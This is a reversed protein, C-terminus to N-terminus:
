LPKAAAPPRPLGGALGGRLQGFALGTREVFHNTASPWNPPPAKQRCQQAHWSVSVSRGGIASRAANGVAACVVEGAPIDLNLRNTGRDRLARSWVRSSGDDCDAATDRLRAVQYLTVPADGDLDVHFLHAPGALLVQPHDRRTLLATPRLERGDASAHLGALPTTSACGAFSVLAFIAFASAVLLLVSTRSPIM